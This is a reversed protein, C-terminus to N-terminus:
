KLAGKARKEMAPKVCFEVFDGVTKIEKTEEGSAGQV